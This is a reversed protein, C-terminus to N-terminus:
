PDKGKLNESWYKIRMRLEGMRVVSSCAGGMEVEKLTSKLVVHWAGCHFRFNHLLLCILILGRLPEEMWGDLWEDV